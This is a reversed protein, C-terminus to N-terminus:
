AEDVIIKLLKFRHLSNPSFYRTFHVTYKVSYFICQVHSKMVQFYSVPSKPIIWNNEKLSRLAAFMKKVDEVQSFISMLIFFVRCFRDSSSSNAYKM